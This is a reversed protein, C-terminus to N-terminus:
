SKKRLEAVVEPLCITTYWLVNVKRRNQLSVNAIYAFKGFFAATM